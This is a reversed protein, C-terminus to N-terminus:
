AITEVSFGLSSLDRDSATSDLDQATSASTEVLGETEYGELYAQRQWWPLRDWEEARM